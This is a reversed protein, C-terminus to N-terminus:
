SSSTPPFPAQAGDATGYQGSRNAAQQVLAYVMAIRGSAQDADDVTSVADGLGADTRIMGVLGAKGASDRTGAVVVGRGGKDLASVLRATTALRQDANQGRIQSTAIVVVQDAATVQGGEVRLMSLTAFESLVQNVAAADAPPGDPADLLVYSLLAGALVGAEDSEPLQFGAPQGGGTVMSKVDEARRPDTLDDTLQIRGTIKAGAQELMKRVGDKVGSDAQSTAVITVRSDRLMGAVVKPALSATVADDSKAQQQLARVDQQLQRRDETLGKVQGRLDDLLAGNLGTTGVVVGLALALFVAILSVIHYRFDIV